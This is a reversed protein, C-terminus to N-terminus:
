NEFSFSFEPFVIFFIDFVVHHLFQLSILRFTVRFSLDPSFRQSIYQSLIKRVGTYHIYSVYSQYCLQSSVPVWVVESDKLVCFGVCFHTDTHIFETWHNWDFPHYNCDYKYCNSFHGDAELKQSLKKSLVNQLHEIRALEAGFCTRMM